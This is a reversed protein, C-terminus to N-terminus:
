PAPRRKEITRKCAAYLADDKTLGQGLDLFDEWGQHRSVTWTDGVHWTIIGDGEDFLSGLWRVAADRCLAALWESPIGWWADIGSVSAIIGTPTVEIRALHAQNKPVEPKLAPEKAWLIHWEPLKSM